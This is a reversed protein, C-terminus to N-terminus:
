GWERGKGKGQHDTTVSTHPHVNERLDSTVSTSHPFRSQGAHPRLSEIGGLGMCTVSQVRECLHVGTCAPAGHAPVKRSGQGLKPVITLCGHGISLNPTLSPWLKTGIHGWGM